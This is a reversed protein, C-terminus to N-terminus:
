VARIVLSPLEIAFRREGRLEHVQASHEDIRRGSYRAGTEDVMRVRGDSYLGVHVAQDDMSARYHRADRDAIESIFEPTRAAQAHTKCRARASLRTMFALATVELAIGVLSIWGPFRRM